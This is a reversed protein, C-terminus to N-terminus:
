QFPACAAALPSFVIADACTGEGSSKGKACLHSDCEDDKTCPVGVGSLPGCSAAFLAGNCKLNPLCPRWGENCSEMAGAKPLCQLKMRDCYFNETCVDAEASCPGGMPVVNPVLCKGTKEGFPIVCALNDASACDANVSCPTRAAGPGSFVTECIKKMDAVELATLQGDSYATRTREICIAAKDPMYRTGQPVHGMCDLKSKSACTAEDKGGCKEVVMRTCEAEARAACFADVTPYGNKANPGNDVPAACAAVFTLFVITTLRM